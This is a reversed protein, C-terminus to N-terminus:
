GDAEEKIHTLISQVYSLIIMTKESGNLSFNDTSPGFLWHPCNQTEFDLINHDYGCADNTMKFDDERYWELNPRYVYENDPTNDSWGDYGRDDSEESNRTEWIPRVFLTVRNLPHEHPCALLYNQHQTLLVLVHSHECPEYFICNCGWANYPHEHDHGNEKCWDALRRIDDLNEQVYGGVYYEMLYRAENLDPVKPGDPHDSIDRLLQALLPTLNVSPRPKSCQMLPELTKRCGALAENLLAKEREHERMIRETYTEANDM